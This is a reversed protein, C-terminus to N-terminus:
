ATGAQCGEGNGIEMDDVPLMRIPLRNRRFLGAAVIKYKHGNCEIVKGIRTSGFSRADANSFGRQEFEAHVERWGLKGENEKLAWEYIERDQVDHRKPPEIATVNGGKVEEVLETVKENPIYPTQVEFRDRGGVWFGRGRIDIKSAAYDGVLGQSMYQDACRFIMRTNMANKVRISLVEKNPSQTAVYCYIGTARARNTINVLRDECRAGLARDLKVDAWEDIFCIIYPMMPHRQNYQQIKKCNAKKLVEMRREAEHILWALAAPVYRRDEIFAPIIERTFEEKEAPSEDPVSISVAVPATDEEDKENDKAEKVKEKLKPKPIQLLYDTLGCYFSFELGGKLDVLMLKLQDPTNHKLLSCILSNAFNSKGGDPSGAILLNGTDPVTRWIPKHRNLGVGVPFALREGALHAPRAQIMEDWSIHRPIGGMGTEREVWLWYGCEVMDHHYSVPHGCNVSLLRMVYEDELERCSVGRPLRRTDLKLKIVEPTLRYPRLFGVEQIREFTDQESKKYRYCINLRTLTLQISDAYQFAEQRLKAYLAKEEAEARKRAEQERKEAPSRYGLIWRSFLPWVGPWRVANTAM